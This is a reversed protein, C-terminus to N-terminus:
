SNYLLSSSPFLLVTFLDTHAQNTMIIIIEPDLEV